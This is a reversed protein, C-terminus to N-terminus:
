PAGGLRERDKRLEAITTAFMPPRSKLWARLWVMGALAGLLLALATIGIAMLRHEPSVALVIFVIALMLGTQVCFLAILAVMALRTLNLREDTIETSLIELRTQLVRLLTRGLRRVSGMMGEDRPSQPDPAM